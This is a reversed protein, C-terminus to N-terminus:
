PVYVPSLRPHGTRRREDGSSCKTRWLQRVPLMGFLLGSALSLLFAVAYVRADAAVTVHIPFEAFPQWATLVRLLITACVTGVFGGILSVVIAESLLQRMVHWRSSGIALRIAVERGRDATRAAFLSALNACAAALVLAALLMIGALFSRAPDGFMDGMLGPKVLRARLEDDTQPYQQALHRAIVNLNDTAQQPTVGPKLRGLIWINHMSRRSLFDTGEDDPSDVMPMWFDPWIFLDAGHFMAPAVGIVTFAHKNVEVASGVIRADAGFRTRWFDYGLVIYPASNPGQEDSAHFLRGRAPQVGLMDFYNGSVRFYWCKYAATGTTLGANLIRYAAMDTFTSNRTKFDLFDPYSQNDDGPAQQVVNYLRAPQPVDLPRLVLVNLVGFVVINAGIGLALTLVATIAFVPSRRLQRATYHLDRWLSDFFMQADAAAVREKLAGRNGFRLIADRRAEEPSMGAAINDATRMEIHSLLEANIEEDLKPRSFANLVRRLTSM